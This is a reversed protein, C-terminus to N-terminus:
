GETETLHLKISDEIGELCFVQSIGDEKM